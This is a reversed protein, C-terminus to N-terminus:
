AADRKGGKGHVADVCIRMCEIDSRAAAARNTRRTLGAFLRRYYAIVRETLVVAEKRRTPETQTPM